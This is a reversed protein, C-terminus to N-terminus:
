LLSIQCKSFISLFLSESCIFFVRKYSQNKVLEFIFMYFDSMFNTMLSKKTSLNNLNAMTFLFTHAVKKSYSKMIEKNLLIEMKWLYSIIADRITSITTYRLIM